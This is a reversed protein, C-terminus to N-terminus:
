PSAVASVRERRVVDDLAEQSLDGGVLVVAADAVLPVAVCALIRGVAGLRGDVLLRGGAELGWAQALARARLVVDGQSLVVGDAVLADLDSTPLDHLFADPQQRVTVTVDFAGSPLARAIPLGFPHGSVVAVEGDTTLDISALGAEDTVLLRAGADATPAIACGATWIGACWAALQWHLPLAVSVVDGTELALDDRLANAIKAAANETSTASLETREGTGADVYTVLPLAGASRKRASLLTWIDAM